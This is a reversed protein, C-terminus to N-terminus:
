VNAMMAHIHPEIIHRWGSECMRKYTSAPFPEFKWASVDITQSVVTTHLGLDTYDIRHKFKPVEHQYGYQSDNSDHLLVVGLDLNNVATHLVHQRNDMPKAGSISTDILVVGARKNALTFAQWNVLTPQVGTSARIGNIWEPNDDFSMFERGLERCLQALYPTSQYGCGCEIVPGDVAHIAHWLVPRHTGFDTMDAIFQERTMM